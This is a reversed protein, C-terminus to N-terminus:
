NADGTKSSGSYEGQNDDIPIACLPREKCNSCDHIDSMQKGDTGILNTTM